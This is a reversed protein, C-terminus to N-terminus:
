EVDSLFRRLPKMAIAKGKKKPFMKHCAYSVILVLAAGVAIKLAPYNEIYKKAKEILRKISKILLM